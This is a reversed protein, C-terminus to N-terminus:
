AQFIMAADLGKSILTFCSMRSTPSSVCLFLFIRLSAFRMAFRCCDNTPSTLRTDSVLLIKAVFGEPERVLVVAVVGSTGLSFPRETFGEDILLALETWLKLDYGEVAEPKM